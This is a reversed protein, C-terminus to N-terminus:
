EAGYIIIGQFRGGEQCYLLVGLRKEMALAFESKQRKRGLM